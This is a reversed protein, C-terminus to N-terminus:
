RDREELFIIPNKVNKARKKGGYLIKNETKDTVKIRAVGDIHEKHFLRCKDTDQLLQNIKNKVTTPSIHLREALEDYTILGRGFCAHFISKERPTLRGFIEKHWNKEFPEVRDDGPRGGTSNTSETVQPKLSDIREFLSRKFEVFELSLNKSFRYLLEIMHGEIKALREEIQILPTRVYVASSDGITGPYTDKLDAQIREAEKTIYHSLKELDM